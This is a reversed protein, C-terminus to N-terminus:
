LRKMRGSAIASELCRRRVDDPPVPKSMNGEGVAIATMYPDRDGDYGYCICDLGRFCDPCTGDMAEYEIEDVTIRM